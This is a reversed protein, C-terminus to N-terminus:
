RTRVPRGGRPAYPNPVALGSLIVVELKEMTVAQDDTQHDYGVLHLFGHVALHLTHHTFSKREARAERATTEYAIVIDGLPGRAGHPSVNTPFALVNTASDQQRWDRNLRRVAPDDALVVAIEGTASTTRAAAAVARRLLRDIGPRRRWLPSAVVVDV